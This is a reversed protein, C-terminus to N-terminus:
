ILPEVRVIASDHKGYKKKLDNSYPKGSALAIFDDDSIRDAEGTLYEYVAVRESKLKLQTDKVFDTAKLYRNYLDEDYFLVLNIKNLNKLSKFKGDLTKGALSGGTWFSDLALLEEEFKEPDKAKFVPIMFDWDNPFIDRVIRSGFLHIPVDETFCKLIVKSILDSDHPNMEYGNMRVLTWEEVSGSSSTSSPKNYEEVRPDEELKWESPIGTSIWM